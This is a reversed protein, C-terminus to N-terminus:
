VSLSSTCYPDVGSPYIPRGIRLNDMPIISISCNVGVLDWGFSNPITPIRLSRHIAMGHALYSSLNSKRINWGRCGHGGGLNNFIM